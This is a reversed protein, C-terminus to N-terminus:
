VLAYAENRTSSINQGDRYGLHEPQEPYGEVSPSPAVTKAARARLSSARSGATMARDVTFDQWELNGDTTIVRGVAKM